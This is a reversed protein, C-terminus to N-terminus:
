YPTARFAVCISYSRDPLTRVHLSIMGHRMGKKNYRYKQKRGETENRM